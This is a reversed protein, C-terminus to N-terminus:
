ILQCEGTSPTPVRVDEQLHPAPICNVEYSHPVPVYTNFNSGHDQPFIM